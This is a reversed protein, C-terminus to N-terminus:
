AGRGDRPGEHPTDSSRLVLDRSFLRITAEPDVNRPEGSTEPESACTVTTVPDSGFSRAARSAMARSRSASCIVSASISRRSSSVRSCIWIATPRSSASSSSSPELLCFRSAPRIVLNIVPIRSVTLPRAPIVALASEKASATACIVPYGHRPRDDALTSAPQVRRCPISGTRDASEELRPTLHRPARAPIPCTQLATLM